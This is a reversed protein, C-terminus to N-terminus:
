KVWNWAESSHPHTLSESILRTLKHSKCQVSTKALEKNGNAKNSQHIRQNKYINGFILMFFLCFRDFIGKVVKIKKM